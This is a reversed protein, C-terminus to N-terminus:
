EFFAEFAVVLLGIAGAATGSLVAHTWGMSATRGIYLGLAFLSLLSFVIAATYAAQLTILDTGAVLFLAAPFIIAVGVPLNDKVVLHRSAKGLSHHQVAREAMVSSYTHALMLVLATGLLLGLADAVETVHLKEEVLTATVIILGYLAHSM